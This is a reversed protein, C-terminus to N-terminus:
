RGSKSGTTDKKNGGVLNKLKGFQAQSTFAISSLLIVALVKSKM